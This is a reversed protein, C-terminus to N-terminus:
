QEVVEDCLEPPCPDGPEWPSTSIGPWGIANGTSVKKGCSWTSQYWPNQTGCLDTCTGRVAWEVAVGNSTRKESFWKYIYITCPPVVITSSFSFTRSESASINGNWTFAVSAGVKGLLDNGLTVEAGMSATGGVSVSETVTTSDSVTVTDPVPICNAVTRQALLVQTAVANSVFYESPDLWDYTLSTRKMEVNHLLTHCSTKHGEDCQAHACLPLFALVAVVGRCHIM